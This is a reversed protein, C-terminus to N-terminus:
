EFYHLRRNDKVKIKWHGNALNAEKAIGRWKRIRFDMEETLGCFSQLERPMSDYVEWWLRNASDSAFVHHTEKDWNCDYDRYCMWPKLGLFHMTYLNDPITHEEDKPREFYKMHNLRSPLRHWWTFFENLFGQDGGNYSDLKFSKSMLDEFICNSPEIVMVGSNFLVRNNPVASLQPYVFFKDINRLVILDADLFIVKDYHTLQWVRLKSYNWVNYADKEANPSRIRQIRRIKWGAAQLGALSKNTISNDALLVLDRTSSTRRISQALAIAGCVYAESSHLVTAYAERPRYVTHNAKRLSSQLKYGRWREKGTEVYAPALQCSGVPMLVKQKLRRLEPKYVWYDGVHRLLDDCRFIEIMPGCSGLFVVYIKRNMDPNVRGSEVALNAVVLNVQLRFVDRLGRRSDGGGGCPVKAVIVDLDRYDEFNPMPLEPCSPKSLKQDEDIWKPFLNKWTLDGSVPDFMVKVAKALGSTAFEPDSIDDINVFGVRARKGKMEEEVLRFWIPLEPEKGVLYAHRLHTKTRASSSSPTSVPHRTKKLSGSLILLSLSSILLSLILPKHKSNRRSAQSAAM